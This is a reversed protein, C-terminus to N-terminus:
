KLPIARRTHWAMSASLLSAPALFIKNHIRLLFIVANLVQSAARASADSAYKGDTSESSSGSFSRSACRYTRSCDGVSRDPGPRLGVTTQSTFGSPLPQSFQ